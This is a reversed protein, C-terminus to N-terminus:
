FKVECEEDEKCGQVGFKARRREEIVAQLSPRGSLPLRYKAWVEYLADAAAGVPAFKTVAYVWGLGIVEYFTRFAEIGTIITGDRKIGHIQDMAQKFTVGANDQEDYGEAAIDVFKLTGYSQNRARLFAVEKM